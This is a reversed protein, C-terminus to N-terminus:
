GIAQGICEEYVEPQYGTHDNNESDDLWLLKWSVQWRIKNM